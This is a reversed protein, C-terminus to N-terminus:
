NRGKGKREPKAIVNSQAEEALPIAAGALERIENFFAESNVCVYNRKKDEMQKVLGEAKLVALLFGATNVSKGSFVSNILAASVPLESEERDFVVQLDSVSVWDDSFLGSGSNEHIRFQIGQRFGPGEGIPASGKYGIHYGLVSRGSLSECTGVKLITVEPVEPLPVEATALSPDAVDPTDTSGVESVLNEDSM